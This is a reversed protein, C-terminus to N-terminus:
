LGHPPLSDSVVSRSVSDREHSVVHISKLSMMGLPALWDGPAFGTTEWKESTGLPIVDKSASLLHYPDPALAPISCLTEVQSSSVNQLRHHHHDCSHVSLRPKSPLNRTIYINGCYNKFFFFTPRCIPHAQLSMEQRQHPETAWALQRSPPSFTPGTWCLWMGVELNGQQCRGRGWAPHSPADPCTNQSEERGKERHHKACLDPHFKRPGCRTCNLQRTARLQFSTQTGPVEWSVEQAGRSRVWRQFLAPQM